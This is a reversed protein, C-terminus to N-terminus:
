VSSLLHFRSVTTLVEVVLYSEDISIDHCGNYSTVTEVYPMSTEIDSCFYEGGCYVSAEKVVKVVSGCALTVERGAGGLLALARRVRYPNFDRMTIRPTQVVVRREGSIGGFMSPGNDLIRSNTPGWTEWPIMPVTRMGMRTVGTAGAGPRAQPNTFELLTRRRVIFEIIRNHHSLTGIEMVLNVIGDSPVSRLGYSRAGVRGKPQWALSGTGSTTLHPYSHRSLPQHHNKSFLAHGPHEESCSVWRLFARSTLVPLSLICVTELSVKESNGIDVLRCLELAPERLRVLLIIEESLVSVQSAYM